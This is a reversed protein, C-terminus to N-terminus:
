DKSNNEKLTKHSANIKFFFIIEPGKLLEGIIIKFMLFVLLLFVLHSSLFDIQAKLKQLTYNEEWDYSQEEKM